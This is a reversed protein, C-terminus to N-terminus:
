MSVEQQMMFTQRAVKQTYSLYVTPQKPRFQVGIIETSVGDQSVIGKFLFM